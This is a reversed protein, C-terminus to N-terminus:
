PTACRKRYQRGGDEEQWAGGAPASCTSTYLWCGLDPRDMWFYDTVATCDPRQQCLQMCAELDPASTQEVNPWGANECTIWDGLYEFCAHSSPPPAPNPRAPESPPPQSPPSADPQSEPASVLPSSSQDPPSVPQIFGTAAATQTPALASTAQSSHAPTPPAAAPQEQHATRPPAGHEPLGGDDSRAGCGCLALGFVFGSSRLATM